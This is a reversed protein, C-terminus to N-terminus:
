KKVLRPKPPSIEELIENVLPDKLHICAAVLRVIVNSELASTPIGECAKMCAEVRRDGFDTRPALDSTVNEM